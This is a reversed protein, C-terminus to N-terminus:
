IALIKQLKVTIKVHYQTKIDYCACSYPIFTRVCSIESLYIELLEWHGKEIYTGRRFSIVLLRVSIKRYLALSQWFRRDGFTVPPFQM